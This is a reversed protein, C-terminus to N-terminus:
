NCNFEITQLQLIPFAEDGVLFMRQGCGRVVSGDENWTTGRGLQLQSDGSTATGAYLVPLYVEGEPGDVVDMAARRWLLDLPREPAFFEITRVRDVPVWYYKGTSTLVEFFGATLDDCDRFDDFATEGLKGSVPTRSSEAEALAASAETLNGERLAISADLHHRLAPSVDFLFEPLRGESYFQQRAMEARLIHRVLSIRIALEPTQQAVTDLQKDARDWEGAFCLLEALFFRANGDTPKKKVEAIEAEIAATLQGAQYLESPNM